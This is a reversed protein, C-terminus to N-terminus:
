KDKFQELWAIAERVETFLRTPYITKNLGIMFNGIIKGVISSVVIATASINKEAETGGLYVRADRNISGVAGLNVLLPYKKGNALSKQAEINEIADEITMKSNPLADVQILGDKRLFTKTTKTEIVTEMNVQLQVGEQKNQSKENM